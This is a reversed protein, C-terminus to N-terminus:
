GIINNYSVPDTNGETNIILVISNEGIGLKQKSEALEPANILALLGALGAAGSEGAIIRQDAGRTIYLSRMAVRTYLDPISLFFNIGDRIAPWAIISPMGCNLGAMISNQRGRAKTVECNYISELMCAASLPELCILEPREAKYKKVFYSTGACALSGVGTQFFVIDPKEINLGPLADDIEKFMTSYGTMIWGPIETYGTYSTDSIVQWGKIRADNAAFDVARDYDGEIIRVTAGEEKIADIRAQVTNHPVYIFCNLGLKKALWAVARGHNGDTATCLTIDSIQNTNVIEWFNNINIEFDYRTKWMKKVLMFVAYSAGLIKFANLGFRQSEDKVIIEKVGLNKALEKLPILPTPRYEEFSRHFEITKENYYKYNGPEPNKKCYPNLIFSCKEM